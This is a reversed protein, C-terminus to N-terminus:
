GGSLSGLTLSSVEIFVQTSAVGPILNTGGISFSTSGNAPIFNVFTFDGGMIAGAANYYVATAETNQLQASATSTVTGVTTMVYGDNTTNVGSTTFTAPPQTYSTTSSVLAQVKMSAAGTVQGSHTVAVTEGPYMVAVTEEDSNVVAGAANNLTITVQVESAYENTSNWKLVAAESAYSNGISDPQLQTFGNGVVQLLSAPDATTTTSAASSQGQATQHSTASIHGAPSSCGATVVGAAVLM